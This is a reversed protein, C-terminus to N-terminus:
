SFRPDSRLRGKAYREEELSNVQMQRGTRLTFRQSRSSHYKANKGTTGSKCERRTHDLKTQGRSQPSPSSKRATPLSPIAPPEKKTEASDCKLLAIREPLRPGDRVRRPKKKMCPLSPARFTRSIERGGLALLWFLSHPMLKGRFRLLRKPTRSVAARAANGDEHAGGVIGIPDWSSESGAAYCFSRVM